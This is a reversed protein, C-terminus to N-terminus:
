NDNLSTVISDARGRRSGEVERGVQGGCRGFGPKVRRSSAIVNGDEPSPCSEISANSEVSRRARRAMGDKLAGIQAPGRTERRVSEEVCSYSSPVARHRHSGSTRRCNRAWRSSTRRLALRQRDRLVVDEELQDAGGIAAVALLGEVQGIQRAAHRDVHARARVSGGILDALHGAGLLLRQADLLNRAVVMRRMAVLLWPADCFGDPATSAVAAVAWGM